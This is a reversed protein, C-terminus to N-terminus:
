QEVCFFRPNLFGIGGDDLVCDILDPSSIFETESDAYGRRVMDNESSSTWGNCTNSASTTWDSNLGSIIPGIVLCPPMVCAQAVSNELPEPAGDRVGLLPTADTMWVPTGDGRVYATYPQLPWDVLADAAFPTGDNAQRVDNVSFLARFSPPCQGDAFGVPNPQLNGGSFNSGMQIIKEEIVRSCDPACAGVEMINDDEGDDCVEDPGLNGDGCVNLNCDPLCAQDLGNNDEGDDCEEGDDVNGDGCFPEPGGSTDTTPGKTPDDTPDDTTPEDTTPTDTTPTDSTSGTGSSTPSQTTATGGSSATVTSTSGGSGVDTDADGGEDPSFCGTFLVLAAFVPLSTRADM